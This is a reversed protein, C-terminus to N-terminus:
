KQLVECQQRLIEMERRLRTLERDHAHSYGSFTKFGDDIKEEVQVQRTSVPQSRV